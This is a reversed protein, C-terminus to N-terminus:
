ELTKYTVKYYFRSVQDDKIIEVNWSTDPLFATSSEPLISFKELRVDPGSYRVNLSIGDVEVVDYIQGQKRTSEKVLCDTDSGIICVGSVTSVKLNVNSEDDRSPTILSGSIVRPAITVGDPIKEETTISIVKESIRNEKEIVTNSKVILPKEIVNFQISKTEFDADVTVEYRGISSSDNPISFQHTFSGSPSPRITTVPGTHTGCIFSGCTIKADTKQIVSVEFEEIYILKNPKGSIVVVDGPYYESKDTSTLLSLDDDLGFIFDNTVSFKAKDSIGSYTAKVTYLGESFITAPLEFTSSFDGGQTPYVTSENIQKFPFTGDVIKIIVREPVVLGEDGQQRTIVNGVVKLKEGAKYLSKETSVFLPTSSLSDNEPDASVKFFLNVSESATSVKIKYVGFNSKIVDRGEDIKLNSYRETIPTVWSWSFRQNDITAGFNRINGDPTTISIDISNDGTPPIAGNLYVTDGLGYVEKDLTIIPGDKLDLSDVISFLSTTTLSQYESKVVYNGITFINKTVDVHVSYRGSTEPIASFVYDVVVNNNKSLSTIQLPSGDDHSMSIKVGAGTSYSTNGYPDKVFGSITMTDGFDYVDMDMKVTLPEDSAVYNEPDDVVPIIIKVFGVDEFVSIKYDGLRLPNNPITFSYAFSGDGKVTMGDLIKFGADSGSSATGELGTQKTQVIELNMTGIFNDNLRGSIKVVDGLGYAEKDVWLSIPVDEKVDKSVDFFILASKDFYEAIIEYTGYVPNVTSIYATTKFQANTPYLVGDSIIKGLPDKVILKMGEYPIVKSTYGTISVLQGPIYQSNDTLISLSADTEVTTAVSELGVSFSTNAFTNAYTTSEGAYNVSVDYRGDNIGLVKDLKITTKYNLNLDPYLTITKYFNPGSITMTIQQPQFFPKIIFVQESVSGSITATEGFVYSDKNSSVTVTIEKSDQTTILKGNSSGSTSTVFKWDDSSDFDYGDYLRQWSNFDNQKDPILHTKDIVINNEDRLEVLEHTDTFWSQVYSFRLLQDSKIVVGTLITMTKKLGTTSAIKWGSLDVDSDTPNYLEVWESVSQSDDGPPNIEVENIVVHDTSAAYAPVLIGAFLLVSFVLTLNVNM